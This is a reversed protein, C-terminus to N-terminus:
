HLCKDFEKKTPGYSSHTNFKLSNDKGWLERVFNRLCITGETFSSCAIYEFM